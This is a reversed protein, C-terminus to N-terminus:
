AAWRRPWDEEEVGTVKIVQVTWQLGCTQGWGVGRSGTGSRYIESGVQGQWTTEEFCRLCLMTWASSVVHM